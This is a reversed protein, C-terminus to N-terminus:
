GEAPGAPQEEAPAAPGEDPVEGGTGEGGAGDGELFLEISRRLDPPPDAALAQELTAVAAAEDGELRQILGLYFLPRPNGPDVELAREISARGTPLLDPLGAADSLSALLLGRESLAEVNDPDDALVGDYLALAGQIDGGRALATAEALRDDTLDRIEGSSFEGASRTGSSAAVAVGAGVAVAAVALGAVVLRRRDVPPRAALAARGTEIARLVEAARRTAEEKLVEYDAEDLEGDARERELDDLSRLLLDRQEELDALADPDLRRRRAGAPRGETVSTV